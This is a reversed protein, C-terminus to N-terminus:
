KVTKQIGEWYNERKKDKLGGTEPAKPLPGQRRRSDSNTKVDQWAREHRSAVAQLLEDIKTGNETECMGLMKQVFILVEGQKDVRRVM